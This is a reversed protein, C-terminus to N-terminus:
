RCRGWLILRVYGSGSGALPRPELSGCYTHTCVHVKQRRWSLLGRKMFMKHTERHSPTYTHCTHTNTQSHITKHVTYTYYICYMYMCLVYMYLLIHIYTHNYYMYCNYCATYCINRDNPLTDVIGANGLSHWTAISGNMQAGRSMRTRIM